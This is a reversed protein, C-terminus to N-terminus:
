EFTSYQSAARYYYRNRTHRSFNYMQGFRTYIRELTTIIVCQLKYIIIAIIKIKSQWNEDYFMYSGYIMIIYASNIRRKFMNNNVHLM